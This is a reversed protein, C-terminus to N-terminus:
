PSSNTGVWVFNDDNTIDNLGIWTDSSMLATVAADQDSDLITALVASISTCADIAESYTALSSSVYFCSSLPVGNPAVSPKAAEREQFSTLEKWLSCHLDGEMMGDYPCPLPTTAPASIGSDGSPQLGGFGPPAATKTTTTTWVTMCSQGYFEQIDCWLNCLLDASTPNSADICSVAGGSGSSEGMFGM